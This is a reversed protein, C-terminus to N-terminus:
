RGTRRKSYGVCGCRFVVNKNWVSGAQKQGYVNRVLKLAHTKRSMGDHRFGQPLHMYLPMKAPAQPYAMVLQTPPKAMRPYTFPDFITECDALDSSSRIHGLLSCRSSAPRWARETLGEM